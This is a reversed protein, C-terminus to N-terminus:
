DGRPHSRLGFGDPYKDLFGISYIDGGVTAAYVTCLYIRNSNFHGFRHSGTRLQKWVIGGTDPM